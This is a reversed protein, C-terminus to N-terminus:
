RRGLSVRNHHFVHPPADIHNALARNRMSKSTYHPLSERRWDKTWYLGALEALDSINLVIDNIALGAEDM